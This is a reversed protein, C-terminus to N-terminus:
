PRRQERENPHRTDPRRREPPPIVPRAFRGHHPLHLASFISWHFTGASWGDMRDGQFIDRGQQLAHHDDSLIRSKPSVVPDVRGLDGVREARVPAPAPPPQHSRQRRRPAVALPQAARARDRLLERLVQVERRRAIRQALQLLRHGRQAELERQGFVPDEFEIERGRFPTRAHPARVRRAAGVKAHGRGLQVLRLRRREGRREWM